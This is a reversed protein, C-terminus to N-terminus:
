CNCDIIKIKPRCWNVSKVSIWISRFVTFWGKNAHLNKKWSIRTMTVFIYRRLATKETHFNYCFHHSYLKTAFLIQQSGTRRLNIAFFDEYICNPKYYAMMHVFTELFISSDSFWTKLCPISQQRFLNM